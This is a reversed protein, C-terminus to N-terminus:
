CNRAKLATLNGNSDVKVIKPDSVNYKLDIDFDRSNNELKAKPAIKAKEGVKLSKTKPVSTITLKGISFVIQTTINQKNTANGDIAEIGIRYYGKKDVKFNNLNFEVKSEINKLDKKEVVIKNPNSANKDYMRLLSTGKSDKVIFSVKKTKLDIAFDNLRPPLDLSYSNAKSTIRFFQKTEKGKNDIIEVYFNKEAKNLYKNSITYTIKTKDKSIEPEKALFNTKKLETGKVNKEDKVSAKYFKISETSLGKADTLILKVDSFKSDDSEFSIKTPNNFTLFGENSTSTANVINFFNIFFFAVLVLCLSSKWNKM